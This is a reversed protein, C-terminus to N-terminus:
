LALDRTELAAAHEVLRQPLIEHRAPLLPGAVQRRHAPPGVRADHPRLVKIPQAGGPVLQFSAQTDLESRVRQVSHTKHWPQTLRPLVAVESSSGGGWPQTLRPATVAFPERSQLGM